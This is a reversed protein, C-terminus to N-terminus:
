KKARAAGFRDAVKNWDVVNWWADLYDARKNQYKLYYAHEWVDVGLVPTHGDMLPTDQNATSLVHLKGDGGVALWAWGSGFRGLGAEKVKAKFQDFGGFTSTIAAALDGSPAGGAKPGMIEWFILAQLLNAALVFGLMGTAFLSVYVFFRGYRAEGLKHDVEGSVPDRYAGFEGEMYATAFLFIMTCVVTVMTATVITLPDVLWGFKLAQGGYTFWTFEVLHPDEALTHGTRGFAWFFLPLAALAFALIRGRYAAPFWLTLFFLMGPYFGAEAAGLLLRVINYSLAGTVFAMAAACIGWTFMIRAFWVRAGVRALILNSPAEFLFYGIFFLSAGLGYAAESLGLAQVMELKAYSVNQRDIYAILYMVCFLPMLRATVRRVTSAELSSAQPSM